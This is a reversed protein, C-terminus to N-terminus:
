YTFTNKKLNSITKKIITTLYLYELITKDKNNILNIIEKKSLNSLKKEIYSRKKEYKILTNKTYKM